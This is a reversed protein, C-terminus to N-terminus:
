RGSATAALPHSAPQHRGDRGTGPRPFSARPPWTGAADPHLPDRPAYRLPVPQRLLRPGPSRGPQRRRRAPLGPAPRADGGLGRRHDAPRLRLPQRDERHQRRRARSNWGADVHVVLPRLGWDRAKLALYSSDVGGSLGLICDYEKGAGAKRIDEAIVAWRRAGEENPFWRHRTHAEHDRCHNCVGADDFTILPDSEDMVCRNCQRPPRTGTDRVDTMAAASRASMGPIDLRDAMRGLSTATRWPSGCPKM